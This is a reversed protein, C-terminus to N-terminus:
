FRLYHLPIFRLTFWLRHSLPELLTNRVLSVRTADQRSLQALSLVQDVDLHDYVLGCIDDPLNAWRSSM